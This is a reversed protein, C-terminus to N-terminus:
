NLSVRSSIQIPPCGVPGLSAYHNQRAANSNPSSNPSVRSSGFERLSKAARCKRESFERTIAFITQKTRLVKKRIIQSHEVKPAILPM